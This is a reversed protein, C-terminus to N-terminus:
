LSPNIKTEICKPLDTQIDGSVCMYVEGNAQNSKDMLFFTLNVLLWVLASVQLVFVIGCVIPVLKM